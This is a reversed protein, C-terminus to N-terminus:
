STIGGDGLIKAITEKARIFRTADTVNFNDDLPVNYDVRILVKQGNFNHQDISKM